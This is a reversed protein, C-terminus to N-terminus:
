DILGTLDPAQQSGQLRPIAVVQVGTVFNRLTAVTEKLPVTAEESESVVIGAIPINRGRLTAVATLSHSLSGLYSGVVLLTPIELAGVWDLVTHSNTLPVMVGGVGEILLTGKSARMRLRCDDLLEEFKIEAGERAAAMHPSLPAVFRWPSMAEIDQQTADRGLANLLIHTDSVAAEEPNYGSIIPKIADIAAGQKRLQQCLAATVMTKGIGTGSSTIFLNKM